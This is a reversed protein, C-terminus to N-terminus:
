RSKEADVSVYVPVASRTFETVKREPTDPIGELHLKSTVGPYLLTMRTIAM